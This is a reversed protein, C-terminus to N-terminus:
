KDINNYVIARNREQRSSDRAAKYISCIVIYCANVLRISRKDFRSKDITQWKQALGKAPVHTARTAEAGVERREVSTGALM